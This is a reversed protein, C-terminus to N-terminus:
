RELAELKAVLFRRECANSALAVAARYAARAEDDRALRELLEGRTAHYYLYGDLRGSRNAQSVRELGAQPGAVEAIAVGHNLALVPSPDRACLLAYLREIQRWDTEAASAADAHVCALTAQLLLPGPEGGPLNEEVLRRGEAIEDRCWLSRDQDALPVLEGEDSVRALRRSHQLIMLALLGAVERDRPVLERLMRGLHLAEACLDLRLLGAGLAASYGENFTLYVTRVVAELREELLSDTPLALPVGAKRIKQKARVLRQAMAVDSMLFAPALTAATHGGVANLTLAVRSPADLVPHCCTFFLRLRDDAVPFDEPAILLEHDSGLPAGPDAPDGDPLAEPRGRRMRSVLRRRSVVWLWAEPREPCAGRRWRALAEAFADSLAAEALELDAGALRCLGGLLSAYADRYLRAVLERPEM